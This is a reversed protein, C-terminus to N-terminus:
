VVFLFSWTFYCELGKEYVTVKRFQMNILQCNYPSTIRTIISDLRSNESINAVIIEKHKIEQKNYFLIDSFIVSM